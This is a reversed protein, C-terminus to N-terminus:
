EYEQGWIECIRFFKDFAGSYSLLRKGQWYGGAQPLGILNLSGSYSEYFKLLEKVEEIPCLKQAKLDFVFGNEKFLSGYDACITAKAKLGGYDQNELSLPSLNSLEPFTFFDEKAVLDFGFAKKFRYLESPEATFFKYFGHDCNIKM